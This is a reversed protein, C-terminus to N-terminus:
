NIADEIKDLKLINVLFMRANDPDRWGQSLKILEEVGNSSTLAKALKESTASRTSSSFFKSIMETFPIGGKTGLAQSIKNSGMEEAGEFKNFTNSGLPTKNGTGKLITSFADMSKQIDIRQITKDQQKALQYLMESFNNRKVKNNMLAKYLNAGDSLGKEMGKTHAQLFNSEFYGSIIDRWANQNKTIKEIEKISMGKEIKASAEFSEAMLKIDKATVKDSAFFKYIKGTLDQNRYIENKAEKIDNFFKPKDFGKEIYAKTYAKYSEQATKFNPNTSMTDVLMDQIKTFGKIQQDASLTKQVNSKLDTTIDRIERYLRHLNKGQGKSSKLLVIYQNMATNLSANDSNKIINKAEIIINDVSQEPFYFKTLKEGGSKKWLWARNTELGLAVNKINQFQESESLVKQNSILGNQKAFKKIYNKLQTPRTRWFKEIIGMGVETAMVDTETKNIVSGELVDSVKTDLGDKLAIKQLNAATKLEEETFSDVIRKAYGQAKGKKLKLIDAVINAGVGVLTGDKDTAQTIGEALAGSAAGSGTMWKAYGAPAFLLSPLAFETATQVIKGAKTNANYNFPYINNKKAADNLTTGIAMKDNAVKDMKKQFDLKKIIREEFQQMELDTAGLIEQSAMVAKKAIPNVVNNRILATGKSILSPLDLLFTATEGVGAAVSNLIDGTDIENSLENKNNESGPLKFKRFSVSNNETLVENENEEALLTLAKKFDYTAM